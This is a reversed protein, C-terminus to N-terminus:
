PNPAFDKEIFEVISGDPIKDLLAPNNNIERLFDFTMGINRNVTKKNTMKLNIKFRSKALQNNVELIIREM